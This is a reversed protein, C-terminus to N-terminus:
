SPLGIEVIKLNEESVRDMHLVYEQEGRGHVRAAVMDRPVEASYLHPTMDAQGFLAVFAKSREAFWTARDIDTTWSYGYKGLKTCGRYLTMREPLESVNTLYIDKNEEDIFTVGPDSLVNIVIAWADPQIMRTPWEAGSWASLFGYRLAERSLKGDMISYFLREPLENRGLRGAILRWEDEHQKAM